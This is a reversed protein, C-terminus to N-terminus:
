NNSFPNSSDGFPNVNDEQNSNNGTAFPNTPESNDNSNGFPNAPAQSQQQPAPQPNSFPNAPAQSPQQNFGNSPAQPAQQQNAFPNSTPQQTPASQQNQNNFGGQAPKFGNPNSMNIGSLYKAELEKAVATINLRVEETAKEPMMAENLNPLENLANEFTQQDSYAQNKNFPDLQATYRNDSGRQIVFPMGENSAVIKMLGDSGANVLSSNIANYVTNPVMLLIISKPKLEENDRGVTIKYDSSVYQAYAIGRVKFGYKGWLDQGTANKINDLAKDIPCEQGYTRLCPVQKGNIRHRIIKRIATNSKPNFLIQVTLKGQQPYVLPYRFNNNNGGQNSEKVSEKAQEMVKSLDFSM